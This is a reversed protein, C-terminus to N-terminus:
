WAYGCNLCVFTKCAWNPNGFKQAYDFLNENRTLPRIVPSGCTPCKPIYQHAKAEEAAKAEYDVVYRRKLNESWEDFQTLNHSDIFSKAEEASVDTCVLPTKCKECIAGTEDIDHRAYSGCEPCIWIMLKGM